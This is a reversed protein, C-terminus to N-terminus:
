GFIVERLFSAKRTPQRIGACLPIYKAWSGTRKIQKTTLKRIQRLRMHCNAMLYEVCSWTTVKRPRNEHKPESSFIATLNNLNCSSTKHNSHTQSRESHTFMINDIQNQRHRKSGTNPRENM